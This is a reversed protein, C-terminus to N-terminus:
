SRFKNSKLSMWGILWAEESCRVVWVFSFNAKELVLNLAIRDGLKNSQFWLHVTEFDALALLEARVSLRSHPVLLHALADRFRSQFVGRMLLVQIHVLLAFCGFDGVSSDGRFEM